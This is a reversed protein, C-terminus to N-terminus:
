PRVIVRQPSRLLRARERKRGVKGKGGENKNGAEAGQERKRGVKGGENKNGAGAGAGAGRLSHRSGDGPLRAVLWVDPRQRQPRDPRSAGDCPGVATSTSVALARSRDARLGLPAYCFFTRGSVNKFAMMIDRSVDIDKFMNELNTTFQGGCETFIGRACVFDRLRATLVPGAMTARTLGRGLRGTKLKTLMSKEADVSASRGHLLRKALDKKYFAEFVDKGADCLSIVAAGSQEHPKM